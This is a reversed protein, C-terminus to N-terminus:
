FDARADEAYQGLISVSFNKASGQGDSLPKAVVAHNQGFPNAAQAIPTSTLSCKWHPILFDDRQQPFFQRLLLSRDHAEDAPLMPYDRLDADGFEGHAHRHVRM